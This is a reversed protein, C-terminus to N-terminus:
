LFPSNPEKNCLIRGFLELNASPVIGGHLGAVRVDRWLRNMPHKAYAFSGGSAGALLDIAEWILQNAAGADRRIWARQKLALQKNGSANTEIEDVSRRLMLEAADIKASAEGAQLHTIAAEDQKDYWTYAIGRDPAKELFLELAAKAMGLIPFLLKTALFPIVGFRYLPEHRLHTSAYDEQLTKSLLAIREDPVFVNKAEVSTSGSGRLGISDWDHLLTLESKPVLASGNDVFRGAHDFVSIGLIDWHAHYIGSNFNWLGEEILIGDEVRKIKVKRPVLVGATRFNRDSFVRDTVRKEYFTAAMWINASLIAVVWAVSGDGRGLEALVDVFTEFSCQLGGYMKPVLLDFLRARELDAITADPLRGLMETESARSRLAAILSSAAAVPNIDGNSEVPGGQRALGVVAETAEPDPNDWKDALPNMM